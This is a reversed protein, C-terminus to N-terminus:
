DAQPPKNLFFQPAAFKGTLLIPRYTQLEKNEKTPHDYPSMDYGINSDNLSTEQKQKILKSIQAIFKPWYYSNVM